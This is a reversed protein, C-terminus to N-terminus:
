KNHVMDEYLKVYEKFKEKQDFQRARMVCAEQSYPKDSCVRIIEKELADVDDCEVVSGCTEDICEPSGGTRFTVVPTGCALSEINVLGFMEERTPNVFLDAASYIAALEKQDNTKHISIISSPLDNDIKENTGVLVLQYINRDLRKSLEVFVDIGKRYSWDFAVGLLIHKSESIGHLERFDSAIPCFVSHDIGHYIIKTRYDSLFSEKVQNNLWQSPTVLVMNELQTFMSRKSAWLWATVNRVIPLLPKYNECAYCGKKWKECKALVYHPCSGTFAWCDHLTWVVPLNNKKIYRFLMGHNIYSGHLNHLQVVDPKFASVKGLFIFTKLYSFCGQLMTYRALRNHIHCDWWSSVVMSDEPIQNKNERYRYATIAISGMELCADHIGRAIKGTSGREYVTNIQLIKM